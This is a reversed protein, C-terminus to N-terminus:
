KLLIETRWEIEEFDLEYKGSEFEDTETNEYIIEVINESPIYSCGLFMYKYNDFIDDRLSSGRGSLIQSGDNYYIITDVGGSQYLVNAIFETTGDGNIDKVFCKDEFGDWDMLWWIKAISIVEENKITYYTRTAAYNDETVSDIYFGSFGMIDEFTGYSFKCLADDNTRFYMTEIVQATGDGRMMLQYDGCLEIGEFAIEYGDLEFSFFQERQSYYKKWKEELLLNGDFM